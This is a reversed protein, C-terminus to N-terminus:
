VRPTKDLQAVHRSCEGEGRGEAQRAQRRTGAVVGDEGPLGASNRGLAPIERGNPDGEEPCSNGSHLASLGPGPVGSCPSPISVNAAQGQRRSLGGLSVNLAEMDKHFEAEWFQPLESFISNDTVQTGLQSDLWDSLLDKAKELLM